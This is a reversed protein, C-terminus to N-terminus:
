SVGGYPYQSVSDAFDCSDHRDVSQEFPVAASVGVDAPDRPIEREQNALRAM